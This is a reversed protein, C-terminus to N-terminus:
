YNYLHTCLYLIYLVHKFIRLVYLTCENQVYMIHTLTYTHKTHYEGICGTGGSNLEFGPECGCTFSGVTNTCIESCGGNDYSCEDTDSSFFAYTFMYMYM